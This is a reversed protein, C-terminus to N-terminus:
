KEHMDKSALQLLARAVKLQHESENGESVVMMQTDLDYAMFGTTDFVAVGNNYTHWALQAHYNKSVVDRSFTFQDHKIGMQGFLTAALDSQNCIYTIERPHQVAGGTWILPIHNYIRTHEGIGQYRCGHDPLLIILTNDWEPMQKFKEIFSGICADLYNFSNFVPDELNKMPVDWPEHSSLTLLTKMWYKSQEKKIDELLTDFMIDDRVGWQASHQEDMTFDAKWTLQDYGTGLVYSKMNTFNIDGGYFFHTSYGIDHLTRALSPLKRSKEPMKMISTTPFAPYGSLISVVGRDTRWSNAYCNTFYLAKHALQNLYPTIEPHGGLETFQGGCSEMIIILINPRNTRLLTDPHESEVPFLGETLAQCEEDTYFTYDIAADSLKNASAIFSFIPNVAAHNLFQNSSFYVQGINTTSEGLGGRIGIFILAVLLLTIPVEKWSAKKQIPASALCVYLKYIIFSLTAVLIFRMLLYGTTVSAMAETPTALYQLCSADLKFKWFAYLSTDAVFALAFMIAVFGDYIKYVTKPLRIFTSLLTLLFPIILFYLATSLDLSIGYFPVLIFNTISLSDDLYCLMFFWKAFIFIIMTLLLFKALYLLRDKM